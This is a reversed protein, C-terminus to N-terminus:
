SIVVSLFIIFGEAYTTLPAGILLNYCVFNMWGFTELYISEVSIGEISGSKFINFMLPMKLVVAGAIIGYSLVRSILTAFSMFHSKRHHTVASQETHVRNYGDM